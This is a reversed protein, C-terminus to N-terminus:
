QWLIITEQIAIAPIVDCILGSYSILMAPQNYQSYTQCLTLPQIWFTMVEKIISTNQYTKREIVWASTYKVSRTKLRARKIVKLATQFSGKCLQGSTLSGGLCDCLVAIYEAISEGLLQAGKRFIYREGWKELKLLAKVYETAGHPYTADPLNSFRKQGETGLCNVRYVGIRGNGGTHYKGLGAMDAQFFPRKEWFKCM